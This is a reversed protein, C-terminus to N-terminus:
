QTEPISISLGVARFVEERSSGTPHEGYVAEAVDIVWQPNQRLADYVDQTFGAKADWDLLEQETPADAEQLRDTPANRVEWFGGKDNKLRWFPDEVGYSARDKGFREILRKLPENVTTFSLWRTGAQAKALAMLLVLTKHPAEVGDKKWTRISDFKALLAERTM